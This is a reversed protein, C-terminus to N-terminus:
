RTRSELQDSRAAKESEVKDVHETFGPIVDGLVGKFKAAATGILAGKITDWAEYIQHKNRSEKPAPATSSAHQAATVSEPRVRREARTLAALIIGGGFAATILAAPHKQFHQRWDTVAKVRNELEAINSKLDKRQDAIHNEIKETTRDM